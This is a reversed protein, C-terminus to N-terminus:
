LDGQKAFPKTQTISLSNEEKTAAKIEFNKVEPVLEKKVEPAVKTKVEPVADKKVEPAIDTKVVEAFIESAPAGIKTTTQALGAIPLLLCTLMFLKNM